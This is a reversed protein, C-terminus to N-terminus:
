SLWNLKLDCVTNYRFSRQTKHKFTKNCTIRAYQTFCKIRKDAWNGFYAIRIKLLINLFNFVDLYAESFGDKRLEWVSGAVNVLM